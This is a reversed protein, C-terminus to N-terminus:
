MQYCTFTLAKATKLDRRARESNLGEPDTYAGLALLGGMFCALHDMKKDIKGNIRDAIYTLNSPYSKQLLEDHMGDISKDYMSRYLYETRNSQLWLKLMYEYFSDAMSGFTLKDNGFLPIPANNHIFYPYLGNSPEVQKLVEFIRNAANTYEQKKTIHGLYRFEMSLTGVESLIANNGTWGANNSSGSILDIRGYPLGSPTEFAKLLRSGLDDAKELFVTDNSCDFAGLLGGLNRITVEFLSKQGARDHSLHDRVWNRAEYFENTMNMIWLTDLGDVLTTGLEGWNDQAGGSVPLVEDHGFANTKYGKWAHKMGHKIHERRQRALNDSKQLVSSTLRYPSQGVKYETYRNLVSSIQSPKDLISDGFYPFITEDEPSDYDNSLFLVPVLSVSLYEHSLDEKIFQKDENNKGTYLAGGSSETGHRLINTNKRLQLSSTSLSGIDNSNLITRLHGFIYNSSTVSLIYAGITLFIIFFVCLFSSIFSYCYDSKINNKKVRKNNLYQRKRRRTLSLATLKLM